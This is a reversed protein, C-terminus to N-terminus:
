LLWKNALSCYSNSDIKYNWQCNNDDWCSAQNTYNSCIIKNSVINSSLYSDEIINQLPVKQENIDNQKNDPLSHLNYINPLEQYFLNIENQSNFNEDLDLIINTEFSLLSLLSLLIFLLLLLLVIVFYLNM